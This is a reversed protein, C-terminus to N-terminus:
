ARITPSMSYVGLPSASENGDIDARIGVRSSDGFSNTITIFKATRKVVTFSFITDYDCISRCTYTKGIQFTNPTATM